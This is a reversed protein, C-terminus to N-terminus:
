ELKTQRERIKQEKIFNFLIERENWNVTTVCESFATRSRPSAARFEKTFPLTIKSRWTRTFIDNLINNILSELQEELAERPEPHTVKDYPSTNIDDKLPNNM